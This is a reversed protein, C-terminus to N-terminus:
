RLWNKMVRAMVEGPITFATTSETEGKDLATHIVLVNPSITFYNGTSVMRKRIADPVRITIPTNAVIAKNFRFHVFLINGIVTFNEDNYSFPRSM